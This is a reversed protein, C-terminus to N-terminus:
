AVGSMQCNKLAWRRQGLEFVRAALVETKSTPNEFVLEGRVTGGSRVDRHSLDISGNVAPAHLM